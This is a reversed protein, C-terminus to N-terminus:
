EIGEIYEILVEPLRTKPQEKIRKGLSSLKGNLKELKQPISKLEDICLQKNKENGAQKYYTIGNILMRAYEEYEEYVFPAIEFTKNKIRILTTFNNQSYAYRSRISYTLLFYKNREQAKTAITNATEIDKTNILIATETNPNYPYMSYSADYQGIRYLLLSTGM